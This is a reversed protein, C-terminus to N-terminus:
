DLPSSTDYDEDLEATIGLRVEKVFKEEDIKMEFRYGNERIVGLAETEVDFECGDRRGFIALYIFDGEPIAIAYVTAKSPEIDLTVRRRCLFFCKDQPLEKFGSESPSIKSLDEDTTMFSVDLYLAAGDATELRWIVPELSNPVDAGKETLFVVNHYKGEELNQPSSTELDNLMGLTEPWRRYILSRPKQLLQHRGNIVDNLRICSKASSPLYDHVLPRVPGPIEM